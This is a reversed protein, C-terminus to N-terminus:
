ADGNLDEGRYLRHTDENNTGLEQEWKYLDSGLFRLPRLYDPYVEPDEEDSEEVEPVFRHYYDFPSYRAREARGDISATIPNEYPRHGHDYASQVLWELTPWYYRNRGARIALANLMVADAGVNDLEPILTRLQSRVDDLLTVAQAEAKEQQATINLFVRAM